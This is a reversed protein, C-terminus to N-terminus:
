YLRAKKTWFADLEDRMLRGWEYRQDALPYEFRDWGHVGMVQLNRWQSKESEVTFGQLRRMDDVDPHYELANGIWDIAIDDSALLAVKPKIGKLNTQSQFAPRTLVQAGHKATVLHLSFDDDGPLEQFCAVYSGQNKLHECALELAAPNKHLNWTFLLLRASNPGPAKTADGSSPETEASM